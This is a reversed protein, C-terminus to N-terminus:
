TGVIGNYDEPQYPMFAEALLNPMKRLHNVKMDKLLIDKLQKVTQNESLSLTFFMGLVLMGQRSVIVEATNNLLSKGDSPISGVLSLSFFPLRQAM